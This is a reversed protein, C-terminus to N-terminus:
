QSDDTGNRDMRRLRIKKEGEELGCLSCEALATLHVRHSRSYSHLPYQRCIDSYASKVKEDSFPAEEILEKMPETKEEGECEEDENQVIDQVTRKQNNGGSFYTFSCVDSTQTILSALADNTDYNYPLITTGLLMMDFPTYRESFLQNFRSGQYFYPMVTNPNAGYADSSFKLNHGHCDEWIWWIRDVNTHHLFFFPDNPSDMNAMDGAIFNHVSAHPAAEIAVRFGGNDDGYSPEGTIIDILQAEGVFSVSQDFARTLCDQGNEHLWGSFAGGNVCGNSDIENPGGYYQYVASSTERRADTEWPWYPLTICSYKGGLARLSDEFRLLYYRHWTFFPPHGHAFQYNNEDAHMDVFVDYLGSNKLQIIANVYLRKESTTLSYWSRRIRSACAQSQVSILFVSLIILLVIFLRKM